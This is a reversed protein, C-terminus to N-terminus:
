GHKGYGRAFAIFDSFATQGDGDIDFAPDNEGFGRAFSLFDSFDVRGDGTFDVAELDPAENVLSLYASQGPLVSTILESPVEFWSRLLSAYVQRFDYTHHFDGRNDTNQFNAGPGLCPHYPHTIM